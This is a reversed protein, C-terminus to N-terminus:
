TTSGTHWGSDVWLSSSWVLVQSGQREAEKMTNEERFHRKRRRRGGWRLQQFDQEQKLHGDEGRDGSNRPERVVRDQSCKVSAQRLWRWSHRITKCVCVFVSTLLVEDEEDKTKECHRVCLFHMYYCLFFFYMCLYFWLLSLVKWQKSLSLHQLQDFSSVDQLQSIIPPPNGCCKARRETM